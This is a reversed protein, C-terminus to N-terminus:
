QRQFQRRCAHLDPISYSSDKFSNEFADGLCIDRRDAQIVPLAASDFVTRDAVCEFPLVEFFAISLINKNGAIALICPPALACKLSHEDELRACDGRSIKVFRSAQLGPPPRFEQWHSWSLFV